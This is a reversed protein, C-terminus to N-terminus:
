IRGSRGNPESLRLRGKTQKKSIPPHAAEVLCFHFLRGRLTMEDSIRARSAEGLPRQSSPDQIAEGVVASGRSSTRSRLRIGDRLRVPRGSGAFHGCDTTNV